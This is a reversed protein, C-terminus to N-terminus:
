VLNEESVKLSRLHLGSLALFAISLIVSQALGGTNISLGYIPKAIEGLALSFMLTFGLVFMAPTMVLGFGNKKISMIALIAFAPMIFCLDLIYVSYLATLKTRTAMLPLLASIWLLTFVTATIFCLSISAMRVPTGVSVKNFVDRQMTAIGYVLSWFSLGFIAMYILYLSTYVQEIVYIGYGYFLYGLIGFIVVQIKLSKEGAKFSLVLLVIAAPITILDQSLAGPRLDVSVVKDYIAPKLVGTISAVLSFLSTILWLIRNKGPRDM